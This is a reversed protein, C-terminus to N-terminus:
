KVLHILEQLLYVKPALSCMLLEKLSCIFWVTLFIPAIATIFIGITKGIDADFNDKVDINKFKFFLFVSIGICILELICQVSNWVINYTIFQRAIEPAQELAFDKVSAINNILDQIAQAGIDSLAPTTM